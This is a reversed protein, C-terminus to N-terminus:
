IGDFVRQAISASTASIGAMIVSQATVHPIMAGQFAFAYPEPWATGDDWFFPSAYADGNDCMGQM